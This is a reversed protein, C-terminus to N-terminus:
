HRDWHLICHRHRASIEAVIWCDEERLSGRHAHNAVQNMRNSEDMCNKSMCKAIAKKSMVIHFPAKAQHMWRMAQIVTITRILDCAFLYRINQQGANHVLQLDHTTNYKFQGSFLVFILNHNLPTIAVKILEIYENM